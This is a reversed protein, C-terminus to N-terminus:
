GVLLSPNASLFTGGVLTSGNMELKNEPNRVDGYDGLANFFSVGITKTANVVLTQANRQFLSM